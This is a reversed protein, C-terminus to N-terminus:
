HTRDTDRGPDRGLDTCGVGGALVLIWVLIWVLMWVLIWVLLRVLVRGPGPDMGTDM